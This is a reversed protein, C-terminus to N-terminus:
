INNILVDLSSVIMKTTEITNKYDNFSSKFIKILSDNHSEDRLLTAFKDFAGNSKYHDIMKIFVDEIPTNKQSVLDEQTQNEIQSVRIKTIERLLISNKLNKYGFIPAIMEILSRVKSSINYTADAYAFIDNTIISPNTNFRELCLKNLLRAPNYIHFFCYKDRHKKLLLKRFEYFSVDWTSLFKEPQASNSNDSIELIANVDNNIAPRSKEKGLTMLYLEYEKRIEEFDVFQLYPNKTIEIDWYDLCDRIVNITDTIYNSSDPDTNTFGLDEVFGAFDVINDKLLNNDKLFLYYNVFSNKIEGMDQYFDLDILCGLNLAKKLEGAVEQLYSYPAFLKITKSNDDCVDLLGSTAKFFPDDWKKSDDSYYKCFAFVLLPTDLYIDKDSHSLYTDLQNSKYLSSFSSTICIKNIFDNKDCLQKIETIIDVIKSKDDINRSIYSKFDSFVKIVGDNYEIAQDYEDIDFQYYSKYLDVLYRYYEDFRNQQDYKKLIAGFDEKFRFQTIDSQKVIDDILSKEKTSLSVIKKDEQSILKGVSRLKNVQNEILSDSKITDIQTKIYACIDSIKVNEKEYVFFVILSNILNNKIDTTDNGISLLDYIVKSRREIKDVKEPHPEPVIERLFSKIEPIKLGAIYKADYLCLNIGHTNNAYEIYEDRKDESIEQSWFYEVTDSYHYDTIKKQIKELDTRIKQSIKGQTTLQVCRKLPSKGQFIRIDSGGDNTGDIDIVQESKFYKREVLEVLKSFDDPTLNKIIHIYFNNTSSAM